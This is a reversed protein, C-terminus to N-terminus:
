RRSTKLRLQGQKSMEDMEDQQESFRQLERDERELEAQLEAIQASVQQRRRELELRKADVEQRHLEATQREQTEQAVRSSGTLVGGPGLYVDVLNIGDKSIIFERMQNSHATGRSKLVYVTRNREGNMEIDRMLIWTDILSSIGVETAELADGGSTLSTMLLTIGHNKMFDVLRLLLTKIENLSGVSNFNSIPDVIVVDPKFQSVLKHIMALHMELGYYTPRSAHFMLLGADVWRQLDLGITAQNRIIQAPSEEFALYLCREGRACTASAFHASVTSKGTGATGSLLVSSGRYVGEGGLMEDLGAVGISIREDSVQHDLGLSTIPLVHFGNEDILFPYENTGHSTGRYKVIRLRRTSTQEIVRNDLLIVCDSVYEELGHRTLAGDGREATIIATVGKEKLWRFLRRLESRIIFENPLSAFLAEITDLVVRKAGIRDIAFGLRIFLGELDFEGAEEVESRDVHVYDIAVRKRAILDPLNFGLSAVNQALEHPMEEFAMFVGPEGYEEAGRILFEMSMLTKGCGASGCILTPRGSPLGGRTIEDLGHIGSPAKELRPAPILGTAGTAM